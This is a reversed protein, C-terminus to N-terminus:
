QKKQKAISEKPVTKQLKPRLVRKTKQSFRKRSSSGKMKGKRYKRKETKRNSL